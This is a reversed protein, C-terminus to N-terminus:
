YGYFKRYPTSPSVEYQGWGEPPTGIFNIHYGDLAVPAVIENGENDYEGSTFIVGVVDISYEHTYADLFENGEHDTKFFGANTAETLWTQEDPFKFYPGPITPIIIEEEM